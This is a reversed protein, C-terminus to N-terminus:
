PLPPIAMRREWLMNKRFGILELKNYNVSGKNVKEESLTRIDFFGSNRRGFVFYEKSQYRVKDFLRFGKVEFTPIM